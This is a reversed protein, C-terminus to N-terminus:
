LLVQRPRLDAHQRRVLEVLDTRPTWGLLSRLRGTDALSDGPEAAPAPVVDLTVDTGTVAAEAAAM